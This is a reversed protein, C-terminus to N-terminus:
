SLASCPFESNDSTNNNVSNRQSFHRNFSCVLICAESHAQSNMLNSLSHLHVRVRMEKVSSLIYCM